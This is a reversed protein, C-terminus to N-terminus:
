GLIRAERYGAALEFGKEFRLADFDLLGPDVEEGMVLDAVHRGLAPALKFGHGSTGADVFIGPAIEGIMPQWDPSVDYLSAWGGHAESRDLQPVRRVVRRAMDAIEDDSIEETFDDPDVNMAAHLPGVLYLETGEPRFYYGGVLDGHAPMREARAWLFTAVIHREVTLPLDVGVQLALPRTWPGAAILVRECATRTGDEAVVTAGGSANAGISAVGRGLRAEAGLEAARQFLGQTVAVPDAHGANREWAAIGIGELDFQPFRELVDDVSLLDTAVGLGNLRAVAERMSAEDEPPHLYLLGTRRFDANRGTHEEFREIMEISEHATRALFPNTYYARCIASSRGTPGGAPAGREFIAVKLGRSALQYAASSGHCGAGIIGVDFSDM